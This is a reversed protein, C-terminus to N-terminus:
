IVAFAPASPNWNILVVLLSSSGSVGFYVGSAGFDLRDDSVFHLPADWKLNLSDLAEQSLLPTSLFCFVFVCLFSIPKKLHYM